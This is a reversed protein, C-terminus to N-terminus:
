DEGESPPPPKKSEIPTVSLNKFKVFSPSKHWKQNFINFQFRKGIKKGERFSNKIMCLIRHIPILKNNEAPHKGWM